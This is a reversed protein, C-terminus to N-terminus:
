TRKIKWVPTQNLDECKSPLHEVVQAWARKVKTIKIKIKKLM